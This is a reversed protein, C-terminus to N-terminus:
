SCTIQVTQADAYPLGEKMVLIGGWATTAETLYVVHVQILVRRLDPHEDDLNAAWGIPYAHAATCSGTHSGAAVFGVQIEVSNLHSRRSLRKVIKQIFCSKSPTASPQSQSTVAFVSPPRLSPVSATAHPSLM